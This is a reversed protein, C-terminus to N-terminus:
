AARVRPRGKKRVPKAPAAGVAADKVWDTLPTFGVSEGGSVGLADMAEEPIRATAGGTWDTVTQVATFGRERSLVSVM